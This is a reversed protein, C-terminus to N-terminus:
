NEVLMKAYLNGDRLIPFVTQRANIYIQKNQFIDEIATDAIAIYEQKCVEGASRSSCAPDGWIAYFDADTLMGYYKGDKLVFIYARNYIANALTFFDAHIDIADERTIESIILQSTNTVAWRSVIKDTKGNWCNVRTDQIVEDRLENFFNHHPHMPNLLNNDFYEKETLTGWNYLPQFNVHDFHLDTCYKAFLPIEMFNLAQVVMVSHLNKIKGQQRLESLFRLNTHLAEFNGGRRLKAYVHPNLTELSVIVSLDFDGLHEIRKWLQPTFVTGNTQIGIRAYAREPRLNELLRLSHRSFLPEGHGGILLYSL